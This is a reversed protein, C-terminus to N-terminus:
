QTHSMEQCWKNWLEQADEAAELWDGEVEWALDEEAQQFTFLASFNDMACSTILLAIASLIINLGIPKCNLWM